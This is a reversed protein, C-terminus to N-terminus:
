NFGLPNNKLTRQLWLVAVMTAVVTSIMMAYWVYEVPKDLVITFIIALPASVVLIRISTIILLPLGKGMGQLIRGITMGVAVLPYILSICQLYYVAVEQIIPDSSFSQVIWPAFTILMASGILTILVSRSIGYKIILKMKTWEEAGYFMGVITTLSAAISMIPLFVVMDIRGGIQYAAVAEVSFGTLIKNFVLQGFSMIIMSISAPLGVKIIESVISNSYSFDKMKFKIYSHEKVVLMYVFILFVVIQCIMTAIAAGKVGFDLAFIFIPDLIINLVTGLATIVMPLKMDGEGSLISRFFGSFVMCPLGYCVYRLYDWSLLLISDRAGLFFLISKGYNLGVVTLIISIIAAMAIAHEASNDANVKDNAGIFRAISATVGSGLGFTLGMVFFFLPMNYAVAAISEGGLRGIFLMDVITYLTHVGMGAMIPIALTWLGREPNQLFINLRSKNKDSDTM